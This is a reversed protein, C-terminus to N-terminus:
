GPLPSRAALRVATPDHTGRLAVDAGSPHHVRGPEPPALHRRQGPDVQRQLGRFVLIEDGLGDGLDVREVAAQGRDAVAVAFIVQALLALAQQDAGILAVHLEPGLLARREVEGVLQEGVIQLPDLLVHHAGDGTDRRHAIGADLPDDVPRHDPRRVGVHQQPRHRLQLAIEAAVADDGAKRLRAAHPQHRRLPDDVALRLVVHEGPVHRPEAAPGVLSEGLGPHPVLIGVAEGDM